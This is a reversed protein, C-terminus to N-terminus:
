NVKNISFIKEVELKQLDSLEFNIRVTTNNFICTHKYNNIIRIQKNYSQITLISQYINYKIYNTFSQKDILEKLGQPYSRILGNAGLKIGGFYRVVIVISYVIQNKILVNCLPKGATNKPEKDDIYKFTNIDLTYAYVIHKANPHMNRITDLLSNLTSLDNFPYTYTIFESKKIINKINTKKLQKM